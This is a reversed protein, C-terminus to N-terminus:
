RHEEGAVGEATAERVDHAVFYSLFTRIVAIIGVKGLEEWTPAIATHVIDAALQFTLGGILWRLYRLYTERRYRDSAAGFVFRVVRIFAEASGFAVVVIAMAEIAHAVYEVIEAPGFEM